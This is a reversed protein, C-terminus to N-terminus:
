AEDPQRHQSAGAELPADVHGLDVSPPTEPPEDVLVPVETSALKPTTSPGEMSCLTIVEIVVFGSRSRSLEVIDARTRSLLFPTTISQGDTRLLLRSDARVHSPARASSPIEAMSSSGPVSFILM